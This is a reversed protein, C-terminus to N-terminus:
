LLQKRKMLTFICAILIIQYISFIWNFGRGVVLSYINCVLLTFASVWVVRAQRRRVMWLSIFGAVATFLNFVGDYLALPLTSSFLFNYFLVAALIVGAGGQVGFITRLEAYLRPTKPKSPVISPESTM